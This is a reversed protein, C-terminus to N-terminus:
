DLYQADPMVAAMAQQQSNLVADVTAQQQDTLAPAYTDGPVISIESTDLTCRCGVSCATAGDGPQCPWDALPQPPMSGLVDCDACVADDDETMWELLQGDTNAAEGFGAQEGAWAVSDGGDLRYGNSSVWDQLAQAFSAAAGVVEASASGALEAIPSPTLTVLEFAMRNLSNFSPALAVARNVPDPAAPPVYPYDRRVALLAAGTLGSEAIHRPTSPVSAPDADPTYSSVGRQWAEDYTSRLLTKQKHVFRHVAEQHIM